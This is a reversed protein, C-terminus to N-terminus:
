QILDGLEDRLNLLSRRLHSKVSGLPLGTLESIEQHTLGRYFYLSVLQLRLPDLTELTAKLRSGQQAALLLDHPGLDTNSVCHNVEEFDQDFDQTHSQQTRMCKRAADLARSRAITLVWAPVTGRTKDFRPAQRWVQWFVDQLVEEATASNRTIQLALSFVADSLHQYLLSLALEDQHMVKEILDAMLDTKLPGFSNTKVPVTALEDELENKKADLEANGTSTEIDDLAEMQEHIRTM